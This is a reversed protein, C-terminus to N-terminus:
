LEADDNHVFKSWMVQKDESIYDELSLVMTKYQELNNTTSSLREQLHSKDDLVQQLRARLEEVEQEPVSPAASPSFLM